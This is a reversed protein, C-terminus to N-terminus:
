FRRSAETLDDGVLSAAAVLRLKDIGGKSLGGSGLRSDRAVSAFGSSFILTASTKTADSSANQRHLPQLNHLCTDVGSDM